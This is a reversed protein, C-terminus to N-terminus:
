AQETMWTKLQQGIRVWPWRSVTTTAAMRRGYENRYDEGMLRKAAAWGSLLRAKREIGDIGHLGADAARWEGWAERWWKETNRRLKRTLKKTDGVDTQAM